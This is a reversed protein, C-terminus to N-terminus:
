TQAARPPSPTTRSNCPASEYMTSGFLFLYDLDDQGAPKRSKAITDGGDQGDNYDCRNRDCRVRKSTHERFLYERLAGARDESSATPNRM